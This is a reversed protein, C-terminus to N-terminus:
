FLNQQKALTHIREAAVHVSTVFQDLLKQPTDDKLKTNITTDMADLLPRIKSTDVGSAATGVAIAGRVAGQRFVQLMKLTAGEKPLQAAASCLKLIEKGYTESTALYRKFDEKKEHVAGLYDDMFAKEFKSYNTVKKKDIKTIYKNLVKELEELASVNGEIIPRSVGQKEKSEYTDLSKGLDVGSVAGTPVGCAEKLKTWKTHTPIQIIKNAM